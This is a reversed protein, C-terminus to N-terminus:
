RSVSSASMVSMESANDDDMGENNMPATRKQQQVIMLRAISKKYQVDREDMLEIFRECEDLSRRNLLAM